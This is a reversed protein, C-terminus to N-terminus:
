TRFLFFAKSFYERSLSFVQSYEVHIFFFDSLFAKAERFPKKENKQKSRTINFWLRQLTQLAVINSTTKTFIQSTRWRQRKREILSSFQEYEIEREIAREKMRQSFVLSHVLFLIRALSCSDSYSHNQEILSFFLSISFHSWKTSFLPPLLFFFLYFLSSTFFSTLAGNYIVFIFFLLFFEESAFHIQM